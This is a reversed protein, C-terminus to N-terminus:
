FAVEIAAEGVSYLEGCRTNMRCLLEQNVAGTVYALLWVVEEELRRRVQGPSSNKKVM